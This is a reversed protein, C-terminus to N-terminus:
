VGPRELPYYEVNRDDWVDARAFVPWLKIHQKLKLAIRRAIFVILM